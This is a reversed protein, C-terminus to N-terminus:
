SRREVVYEAPWTARFAPMAECRASLADLAPHAGEPVFGPDALRAYRVMCATSLDAQTLRAGLFFPAFRRSAVAAIGRLAQDRFRGIAVPWHRDAPRIATEWMWQVIKDAVGCALATVQLVERREPGRAPVLAREPGVREDLWDLIAASDILVSGDDLILSPVRGLPNTQAMSLADKFVSRTDREFPIGLLHLSTGVRRTFFSDYQGVLIM